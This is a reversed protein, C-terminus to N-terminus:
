INIIVLVAKLCAAAVSWGSQSEKRYVIHKTPLALIASSQSTQRKTANLVASHKRKLLTHISGNPNHYCSHRPALCSLSPQGRQPSCCWWTFRELDMQVLISTVSSDPCGSIGSIGLSGIWFIKSIDSSLTITHHHFKVSTLSPQLLDRYYCIM